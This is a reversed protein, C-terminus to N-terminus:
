RLVDRLSAQRSLSAGHGTLQAPSRASPSGLLHKPLPGPFGYQMPDCVRVRHDLIDRETFEGRQIAPQGAAALRQELEAWRGV